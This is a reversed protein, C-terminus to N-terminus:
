EFRVQKLVGAALREAVEPLDRRNGDLEVSVLVNGRWAVVTAEAESPRALYGEDGVKAGTVHTEYSRDELFDEYAEKADSSILGSHSEITVEVSDYRSERGSSVSMRVTCRHSILSMAAFRTATPRNHEPTPWVRDLGAAGVAACADPLSEAHPAWPPVFPVTALRVWGLLGVIALVALYVAAATGAGSKVPVDTRGGYRQAYGRFTDLAAAVRPDSLRWGFPPSIKFQRGDALRLVILAGLGVRRAAVGVVYPWAIVTRQGGLKQPPAAVGYPTLVTLRRAAGSKAATVLVAPVGLALMLGPMLAFTWLDIPRSAGTVLDVLGVMMLHYFGSIAFSFFIFVSLNFRRYWAADFSFEVREAPEDV